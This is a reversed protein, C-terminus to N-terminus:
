LASELSSLGSHGFLTPTAVLTSIDVVVMVTLDPVSIPRAYADLSLGFNLLLSWACGMGSGMIRPNAMALSASKCAQPERGDPRGGGSPSTTELLSKVGRYACRNMVIIWGPFHKSAGLSPAIQFTLLFGRGLPSNVWRSEIAGVLNRTNSKTDSIAHQYGLWLSYCIMLLSCLLAAFVWTVPTVVRSIAPCKPNHATTM